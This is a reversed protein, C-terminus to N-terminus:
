LTQNLLQSDIKKFFKIHNLVKHLIQICELVLANQIKHIVCFVNQVSCSKGKLLIMMGNNDLNIIDSMAKKSSCKESITLDCLQPLLTLNVTPLSLIKDPYRRLEIHNEKRWPFNSM